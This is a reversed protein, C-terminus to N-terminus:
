GRSILSTSSVSQAFFILHSLGQKSLLGPFRPQQQGACLAPSIYGSGTGLLARHKCVFFFFREGSAHGPQATALTGRGRTDCAPARGHCTSPVIEHWLASSLCAEGAARRWSPASGRGGQWQSARMGPLLSHSDRGSSTLLLQFCWFLHSRNAMETAGWCCDKWSSKPHAPCCRSHLM